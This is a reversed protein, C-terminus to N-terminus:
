HSSMLGLYVDLTIRACRDWSFKAAQEIGRARLSERLPEDELVRRIAAAIGEVDEADVRLAADGTVEPVSANNSTVVPCGCTMAEILPLGFGEYLTPFVFADAASYFASLDSHSEVFGIQMVREGLQLKDLAEFIPGTSWGLGGVLVLRHPIDKALRAFARLLTPVNKRPELTSVFLLYPGQIGYAKSLRHAAAERDKRAFDEGAAEYAVTVKAPEVKSYRLIDAKTSESCAIVADAEEIFRPVHKAFSRTIKPSCLGPRALFAMDHITLVRRASKVPPLFYNTAHYVDLGGLLVDAKPAHAVSWLRYMLRTPVRIQRYVMSGPLDGQDIRPLGTALGLFQFEPALAALRGLLYYCYNGVGARPGALPTIDIGIRM